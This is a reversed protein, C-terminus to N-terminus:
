NNPLWIFNDKHSIYRGGAEQKQAQGPSLEYNPAVVDKPLECKLTDLNFDGGIIYSPIGKEEIVKDLFTTLSVFVRNKKKNKTQYHPGHWSVALVSEKGSKTPTLKVMAMRSLVESADPGLSNRIKRISQHTTELGETEGHFDEKLWIVASEKENRVHGYRSTDVQFNPVVEQEFYGPLEQCFIISSFFSRMIVSVFRRRKETVRKEPSNMNITTIFYSPSTASKLRADQVSKMFEAYEKERVISDVDDGKEFYRELFKAFELGVTITPDDM